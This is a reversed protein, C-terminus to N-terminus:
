TWLLSSLFYASREDLGAGAGVEGFILMVWWITCKSSLILRCLHRMIVWLGYNVKPNRRSITHEVINMRSITPKSLYKIVHIWWQLKICYIKVTRSIKQARALWGEERGGSIDKVTEMTKGKRFHRITPTMRYTAKGSQQKWNTIHM